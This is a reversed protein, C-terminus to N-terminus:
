VAGSLAFTKGRLLLTKVKHPTEAEAYIRLLPETGSMRFFLWQHEGILKVGDFDKVEHPFEGLLKKEHQRIKQELPRWREKPFPLDLRDTAFKGFRETFTKLLDHVSGESAALAELLFLASLLADREPIHGRFGIGGSEEGGVLFDPDRVMEEAIHKFGVPTEELLLSYFSAMRDILSSVSVTKVVKGWLAKREAFHYLLIGLIQVPSLFRGGPAVAAIRDGDGDFAIGIDYGNSRMRQSLAQLHQPIPEPSAGGFLVDRETHLLDIQLGGLALAEPLFASTSGHLTDVLVKLPKKRFFHPNIKKQLSAVYFPRPSLHRGKKQSLAEEWSLKQLPSKGVSREVAHTIDPSASAGTSAKLKFGHFEPPNHSATLVVGLAVKKQVVALSVLPTPVPESFLSVSLGNGAFVEASVRAFEESLFRRDYGIIVEKKSLSGKKLFDATAQSVNRVNEFTFERAIRGRWGDTGFHIVSM